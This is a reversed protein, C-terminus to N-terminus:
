SVSLNNGSVSYNIFMSTHSDRAVKVEKASTDAPEYSTGKSEKFFCGGCQKGPHNEGIYAVGKDVSLGANM